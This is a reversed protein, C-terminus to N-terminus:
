CDGSLPESMDQYHLGFEALPNAAQSSVLDHTTRIKFKVLSNRSEVYRYLTLRIRDYFRAGSAHEWHALGYGIGNGLDGWYFNSVPYDGPFPKSLLPKVVGDRVGLLAVSVNCYDARGSASVAFIVSAKPSSTGMVAFKTKSPGMLYGRHNKWVPFVTSQLLIGKSDRVEIKPYGDAPSFARVQAAPIGPLDVRSIQQASLFPATLMIAGFCRVLKM